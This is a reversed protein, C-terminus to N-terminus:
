VSAKDAFGRIQSRYRGPPTGYHRAFARNFAYESQYGVDHAISGVTADGVRLSRAALEMRWASLYAGPTCGIETEFRRALTARSVGVRHALGSITWPFAPDSHLETLARSTTPDGLGRLWSPTGEHAGPQDIWARLIHILVINVIHDLIPRVGPGSTGLEETILALSSRLGPPSAMAPIHVVAPLASFPSTRAAPDIRYSACVVLTTAPSNGLNLEGGTQIAAEAAVHDFPQPEINLESVLCHSIGTPLLVVDGPQIRLPANGEVLLLASGSTIAHFAAGPVAAMSLGWNGGARVTAAVSGRIDATHLVSALMDMTPVM